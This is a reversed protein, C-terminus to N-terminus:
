EDDIRTQLVIQRADELAATYADHYGSSKASFDAHDAADHAKLLQWAVVNLNDLTDFLAIAYDYGDYEGSAPAAQDRLAILTNLASM